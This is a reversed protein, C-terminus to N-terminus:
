STTILGANLLAAHIANVKDELARFNNNLISQDFSATVDSIADGTTGSSGTLAVIPTGYVLQRQIMNLLNPLSIRLNSASTLDDSDYGVVYYNNDWATKNAYQNFYNVAM